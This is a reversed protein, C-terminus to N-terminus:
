LSLLMISFSLKNQTSHFLIREVYRDDGVGFFVGVGASAGSHGNGLSSGDTYIRLATSNATSAHSSRSQFVNTIKNGSVTDIKRSKRPPEESAGTSKSPRVVNMADGSDALQSSDKGKSRVFETAEARTSFKKYKPGKVGLIQKQATPWDTYVGPILGIAVGYYKDAKSAEFTSLV